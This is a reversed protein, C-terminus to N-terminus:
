KKLDKTKTKSEFYINIDLVLLEGFPLTCNGSLLVKLSWVSKFFVPVFAVSIFALMDFFFFFLFLLFLFKILSAKNVKISCTFRFEDFLKLKSHASTTVCNWFNRLWINYKNLFYLDAYLHTYVYWHIYMHHSLIDTVCLCVSVCLCM